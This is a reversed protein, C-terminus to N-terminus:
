RGSHFWIMNKSAWDRAALEMKRSQEVAQKIYDDYKALNEESLIACPTHPYDSLKKFSEM